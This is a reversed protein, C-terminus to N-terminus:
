RTKINGECFSYYFVFAPVSILVGLIILSLVKLPLFTYPDPFAVSILVACGLFISFIIAKTSM